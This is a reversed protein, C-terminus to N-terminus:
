YFTFKREMGRAKSCEPNDLNQIVEKSSKNKTECNLVGESNEEQIIYLGSNLATDVIIILTSPPASAIKLPMGSLVQM